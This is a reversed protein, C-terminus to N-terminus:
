QEGGPNGLGNWARLLAGTARMIGGMESVYRRARQLMGEIKDEDPTDQDAEDEIKNALARLNARDVGEMVDRADERLAAVLKALQESSIGEPGGKETSGTRVDSDRGSSTQPSGIIDGGGSNQSQWNM